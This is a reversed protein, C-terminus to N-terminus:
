EPTAKRSVLVPGADTRRNAALATARSAVCGALHEADNKVWGLLASGRTHLWPLGLFYLGPWATVGREHLIHGDHDFVPVEIWSHDTDFGTAWIVADVTLSTGGEFVMATGSGAHARAQLQIGQRTAKRNSSGILADRDKLRRGLRSGVTKNMLGTAQLVSFLERGFIRAPLPTQRSGVSLHVHRRPDAALDEAIQYGSNGGGVVLVCGSPVDQPRRYESSHLQVVGADLGEALNVPRCPDQFPGTAVVVQGADYTRDDLEVVYGSETRRVARVPSNLEVPLEFDRAYDTLYSVVQDRSPYSDADAPFERGPLGDYRAPTFLRLSDWRSRWAAAPEAAAELITFDRGQRALHYGMALGAQGGGIVVVERHQAVHAGQNHPVSTMM